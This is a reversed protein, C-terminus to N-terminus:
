NMKKKDYDKLYELAVKGQALITKASKMTAVLKPDDKSVVYARKRLRMAEREEDTLVIKHSQRIQEEAKIQFQARVFDPVNAIGFQKKVQDLVMTQFANVTILETPNGSIIEQAKVPLATLVTLTLLIIFTKM